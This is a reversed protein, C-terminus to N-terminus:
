RGKRIVQAALRAVAMGAMVEGDLGLAPVAGRGCYFVNRHPLTLGASRRPRDGSSFVVPRPDVPFPNSGSAEGPQPIHIVELYRELYPILEKVRELMAKSAEDLQRSDEAMERPLRCSVTMARRGAPAGESDAPTQSLLMCDPGEMASEPSVLMVHDSMAEPIVEDAVGLRLSHLFHTPVLELSAASYEDAPTGSLWPELLAPDAGLILSEARVPQKRGAFRIERLRGWGFVLEEPQEESTIDVKIGEVRRRLLGDFADPAAPDQYLGDLAGMLLIGARAVSLQDLPDAVGSLLFLPATVFRLADEPVEEEEAAQRLSVAADPSEKPESWAIKTVGIRGLLGVQTKESLSTAIAAAHATGADELRSLLNTTAAAARSGFERALETALDGAEAPVDMRHSPDVVQFLPASRRLSQVDKPHVQIERLAQPLWVGGNIGALIRRHNPFRYRASQAPRPPEVVLVQKGQAGLMAAATFSGPSPFVIVADYSRTIM